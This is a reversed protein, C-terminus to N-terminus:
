VAPDRGAQIGAQEREDVRSKKGDEAIAEDVAREEPTLRIKHTKQFKKHRDNGAKKDIYRSVPHLITLVAWLVITAGIAFLWAGTAVTMGIAATAWISAATTLDHASGRRHVIVGAGLFSIGTVVNAAVRDTDYGPFAYMSLVTFICAGIGSLMHTRLGASKGVRERQWGIPLVLFATLLVQFIAIAQQELSMM